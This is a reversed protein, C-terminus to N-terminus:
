FIKFRISFITSQSAHFKLSYRAFSADPQHFEFTGACRIISKLTTDDSIGLVEYTGPVKLPFPVLKGPKKVWINLSPKVSNPLGHMPIQSILRYQM